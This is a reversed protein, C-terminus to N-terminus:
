ADIKKFAPTWIPIVSGKQTHLELKNFRNVKLQAIELERMKGNIRWSIEVTEGAKLNQGYVFLTANAIVISYSPQKSFKQKIYAIARIQVQGKTLLRYDIIELGGSFECKIKEIEEWNAEDLPEEDQYFFNFADNSLHLTIESPEYQPNM